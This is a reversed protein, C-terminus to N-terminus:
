SELFLFYKKQLCTTRNAMPVGYRVTGSKAMLLSRLVIRCKKHWSLCPRYFVDSKKVETLNNFLQCPFHLFSNRVSIDSRNEKQRSSEKTSLRGKKRCNVKEEYPQLYGNKGNKRKFVYHETRRDDTRHLTTPITVLSPRDSSYSIVSPIVLFTQRYFAHHPPILFFRFPAPFPLRKPISVTDVVTLTEKKSHRKQTM